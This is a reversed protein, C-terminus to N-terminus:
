KGISKEFRWFTRSIKADCFHAYFAIPAVWPIVAQKHGKLRMDELCNYLLIRGIGKGRFVEATGMPGFWGTGQNNGDYAAFGKVEGNKLAIFVSPKESEMAMRIEFQWLEWEKKLFSLIDNLDDKDARRIKVGEKQLKEIEKVTEWSRKQLDLEMNVAEGNREFGHKLAFCIAETYRPDVGPMFYNLPVDYIRLRDVKELLMYAELEKLMATAVGTRRSNKKVAMLKIYAFKESRLDRLVGQMFGVIVANEEAIFTSDVNWFPDRYLKEELIEESFSDYECSQNLLRLVSTFDEKRYKRITVM